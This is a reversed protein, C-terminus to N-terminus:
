SNQIRHAQELAEALHRRWREFADSTRRMSVVDNLTLADISPVPTAALQHARLESVPDPAGLFLLKAFLPSGCLVDYGGGVYAADDIASAVVAITNDIVSQPRLEAVVQVFVKVVAVDTETLAKSVLELPPQRNGNRIHSWLEQLAPTLGDIYSAEFAQWLEDVSVASEALAAALQAETLTSPRPGFFTRVISADILADIQTMSAAAAEIFARALKRSPAPTQNLLDAAMVLPDEIVLGHGYLLARLVSNSFVTGGLERPNMAAM